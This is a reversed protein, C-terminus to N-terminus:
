GYFDDITSRVEVTSVIETPANDGQMLNHEKIASIAASANLAGKEEDDLSCREILKELKKLKDAKTWVYSEDSKKQHEKIARAIDPKTLNESGVSKATKESYGADIAAQTANGNNLLYAKVFADQKPTLKNVAM